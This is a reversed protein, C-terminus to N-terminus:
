PMTYNVGAQLQTWFGILRVNGPSIMFNLDGPYEALERKSILRVAGM